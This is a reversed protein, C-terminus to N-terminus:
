RHHPLLFISVLPVLIIFGLVVWSIPHGFNLTYGLGFRKEVFLATDERNFYFMGGIWRSDPTSDGVIYDPASNSPRSAPVHDAHTRSARMLMLVIFVVFVLTGFMFWAIGASPLDLPQQTFSPRLPLLATGAFVFALLYEVCVLIIANYRRVRSDRAGGPGALEVKRTRKVVALAILAMVACMIAGYFLMGYVGLFTKEGFANAHGFADWHIPFRQPIADWNQRLIIAAIVFLLFPTIQAFWGGPMRERRPAIEAVRVTSPKVRHSMTAKRGHLFAFYNGIVLWFVGVPALWILRAWISIATLAIAIVANLIVVVRFSHVIHRAEPSERFEPNVTIAFFVSTRSLYPLMCFFFSVLAVIAIVFSSLITNVNTEM